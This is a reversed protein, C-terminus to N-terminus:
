IFELKFIQLFYWAFNHIELPVSYNSFYFKAFYELFFKRNFPMWYVDRSLKLFVFLFSSLFFYENCFIEENGCCTLVSQKFDIWNKKGENKINKKMIKGYTNLTYFYIICMSRDIYYRTFLFNHTNVIVQPSIHTLHLCINLLLSLSFICVVIKM